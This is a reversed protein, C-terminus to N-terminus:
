AHDSPGLLQESASKKRHLWSWVAGDVLIANPVPEGFNQALSFTYAGANLIALVTGPVVPGAVLPLPRPESPMCLADGVAYATRGRCARVPVVLYEANERPPLLNRGADVLVWRRPGNRKCSLVRTLCIAADNVLFRGPEVIVERDGQLGAFPEWVRELFRDLPYGLAEMLYRSGFGGGLDLIPIRIGFTREVEGLFAAVGAVHARHADPLYQRTYGHCQLGRLCLRRSQLVRKVAARAEGTLVDFGFKSGPPTFRGQLRRPLVPNIRIGVPIGDRRGRGLADLAAIETLSEVNVLSVGDAVVRELFDARKAPGNVVVQEPSFGIARALDYEFGSMVEVSLGAQRVLSVVGPLYCAKLAFHVRVPHPCGAAAAVMAEINSRLRAASYVLVPTDLRKAIDHAPWADIWLQGGEMRISGGRALLRRTASLARRHHAEQTVM